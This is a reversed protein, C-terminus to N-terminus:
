KQVQQNNGGIGFIKKTFDAFKNNGSELERKGTIMNIGEQRGLGSLSIQLRKKRRTFDMCSLPLAGFGVWTDITLVGSLETYHLRSRTDISTMKQGVDLEDRNMEKLMEADNSIEQPIIMDNNHMIDPSAAKGSKQITIDRDDIFAYENNDLIIKM